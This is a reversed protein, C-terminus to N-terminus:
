ARRTRACTYAGPFAPFRAASKRHCDSRLSRRRFGTRTGGRGIFARKGRGGKHEVGAWGDRRFWRTSCGLLDSLRSQRASDILFSSVSRRPARSAVLLRAPSYVRESCRSDLQNWLRRTRESLLSLRNPIGRHAARSPVTGRNALSPPSSPHFYVLVLRASWENSIFFSLFFFIPYLTERPLFFHRRRLRFVSSSSLM